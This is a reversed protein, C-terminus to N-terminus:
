HDAHAMPRGAIASATSVSEGLDFSKNFGQLDASVLADYVPRFNKLTSLVPNPSTQGLGCRSTAKVANGLDELYQLDAPEGRGAIIRELREQLLRNGVRCPTCYGCSEEIFFDMFYRAIELVNRDPGFIMLAGGTALDDYCITRHFDAPGILQGSPGGVQVAVPNDVGAMDLVEALTIGFPVEYVGPARCDGSISLLKTGSSGKSGIQAFWGSGM